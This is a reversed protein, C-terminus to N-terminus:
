YQEFNETPSGFDNDDITTKKNPTNQKTTKSVKGGKIKKASSDGNTSNDIKTIGNNGNLPKLESFDTNSNSSINTKSDEGELKQISKIERTNKLNTTTGFNALQIMSSLEKTNINVGFGDRNFYRLFNTRPVFRTQAQTYSAMRPNFYNDDHFINFESSVIDVIERNGGSVTIRCSYMKSLNKEQLKKIDDNYSQDSSGYEKQQIRQKSKFSAIRSKIKWDAVTPRFAFVVSAFPKKPLSGEEQINELSLNDLSKVISECLLYQDKKFNGFEAICLMRNQFSSKPLFNMNQIEPSVSTGIELQVGEINALEQKFANIVSEKTSTVLFGTFEPQKHIEFTVVSSQALSHVKSLISYIEVGFNKNRNHGGQNSYTIQLTFRKQTLDKHRDWLLYGFYLVMLVGLGVLILILNTQDGVSISKFSKEIGPQLKEQFVELLINSTQSSTTSTSQILSM